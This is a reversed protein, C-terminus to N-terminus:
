PENDYESVLDNIDRATKAAKLFKLWNTTRCLQLVRGLVARRAQDQRTPYVVLVFVNVKEGTICGFDIGKESRGIIMALGDIGDYACHPIACGGGIGTSGQKERALLTKSVNRAEGEKVKGAKVLATVMEDLAEKADNGKLDSITAKKVLFDSLIVGQKQKQEM